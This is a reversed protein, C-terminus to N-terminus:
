HTEHHSTVYKLFPCTPYYAGNKNRKQVEPIQPIIQRFEMSAQIFALPNRPTNLYIYHAHITARAVEEHTWRLLIDLKREKKAVRVINIIPAPLFAGSVYHCLVFSLPPFERVVVLILNALTAASLRLTRCMTLVNALGHLLIPLTNRM